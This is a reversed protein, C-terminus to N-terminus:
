EAPHAPSSPDTQAPPKLSQFLLLHLLLLLDGEPIVLLFPLLLQLPLPLLLPLLLPLQLLLPLGGKV